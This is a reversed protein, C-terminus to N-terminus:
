SNNLIRLIRYGILLYTLLYTLLYFRLNIYLMTTFGRIRQNVCSRLM